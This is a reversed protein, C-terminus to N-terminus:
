IPKDYIELEVMISRHGRRKKSTYEHQAKLNFFTNYIKLKMTQLLGGNSM